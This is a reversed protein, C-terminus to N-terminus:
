REGLSRVREDLQDSNEAMRQFSYTEAAQFEWNDIQEMEVENLKLETPLFLFWLLIEKSAEISDQYSRM